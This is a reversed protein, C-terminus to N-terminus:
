CLPGIGRLAMGQAFPMIDFTQSFNGVGHTDGQCQDIAGDRMTARILRDLCNDAISKYESNNFIGACFQYFYSMVSTVSSDYIGGGQLITCFGGDALQYAKYSEAAKQIIGQLELKEPSSEMEAYTDILGLVFWATGRGWGYLSLPLHTRSDIAHCPLMTDGYMGYRTYLRIQDFAMKVYKDKQYIRGYLCLFPCVMGLTDVFYREAQKGESYSIIGDRTLNDEILKIVREMSPRVTEYDKPAVTKLFAYALMAYDVKDNTITQKKASDMMTKQWESVAERANQSESGYLGLVLGAKQWSQITKNRYTGKLIDFLVYQNNDTQRVTPTHKLWKISKQEVAESWSKRDSWRGIRFRKFKSIQNMLFDTGCLIAFFLVILLLVITFIIM